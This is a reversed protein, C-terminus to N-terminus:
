HSGSGCLGVGTWQELEEITRERDGLGAYALAYQFHGRTKPHALHAEAALREVEDRRGVKGWAYALYGWNETTALLRIAEDTRGQAIRARGLCDSTFVVDAPLEECQAAAEDYRGASLLLDGLESRARPSLPDSREAARMERAAEKIRGLPWYFFRSFQDHTASSNPDIEIARRFSREALEWQADRAYAAGLASHAEALLPDLEIARTAATRLKDLKEDHDSHNPATFSSWAYAVALGAYAPALSPDRAVSDEFLRIVEPNGPFVRVELARARLYIDYAETNTDYHRQGRGLKLRLSNVIGRAIEDQVAAIDTVDRDYRASWLPFDDRVRILQANIRLQQGSRLVSGEVIYDAELQRAAERLNQPKRKFAFSSTQSRVALREIISLNRIIESTLGDAFYENSPDSSVNVLPLVAIQIPSNHPGFRTWGIIVLAIALAGAALMTGIWLQAAPKLGRDAESPEVLHFVPVYGGKPLMIVMPDHRGETSYYKDLRTRLRVAETRVTSDLKSDYGPRRGYVEVGIVSEKLEGDRGDLHREILFRLLKSIREARAFCGSVLVRELEERISQGLEQVTAM